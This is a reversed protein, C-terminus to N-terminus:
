SRQVRITFDAIDLQNLNITNNTDDTEVDNAPEQVTSADTYTQTGRIDITIFFNALRPGFADFAKRRADNPDRRIENTTVFNVDLQQLAASFLRAGSDTLADLDLTFTLTRSGGPPSPPTVFPNSARDLRENGNGLDTRRFVTFQGAQYTVLVTFQGGVVGNTLSTSSVVAAPGTASNGDDDFAFSYIYADNIAATTTM